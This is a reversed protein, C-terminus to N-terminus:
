FAIDRRAENRDPWRPPGRCGAHRRVARRGAGKAPLPPVYTDFGIECGIMMFIFPQFAIGVFLSGFM